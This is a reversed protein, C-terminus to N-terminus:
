FTYHLTFVFHRPLINSRYINTSFDSTQIQEFNKENLLNKFKVDASWSTNKPRYTANMDLFIFDTSENTDPLYYDTNISFLWQKNPKYIAEFSNRLRSNRFSAQSESQSISTQWNVSNEFDIPIDLATKWAVGYQYYNTENNRIDSNNVINNYESFSYIGSFEITSDIFSLYKSININANWRSNDLPLFFYQINTQNQDVTFNSFFGGESYKYSVGATMQFLTFLDNKHYSLSYLQHKILELSPIHSITRRNDIVVPNAYSHALANSTQNFSAKVSFFSNSNITYWLSLSPEFVLDNNTNETSNLENSIKQKLYRLSYAPSLKWKGLRFHYGGSSYVSHRNYEIDNMVNEESNEGILTRASLLSRFPSTDNNAGIVIHYKNKGFAGLFTVTTNLYNRKFSSDQQDGISSSTFTSPTLNYQQKITNSAHKVSLQLAQKQSIKKTFLLRQKVYFDETDLLSTSTDTGNKIIAVPTKINEQRGRLTYELLSTKSTNYKIEIDARYQEPKKRIVTNDSTEFAEDDFRYQDIFLQNSTIKDNLFYLNTKVSVKRGVKIIQNYNGFVQNNINIRKTDLISYFRSEPIVKEAYFNLENREEVSTSFGFYDFPTNNVGINNYALTSFSKYNKTIGLVNANLFYAEDDAEFAGSGVDANGSFDIRNNKLKLNLAVKGDNEIGKLLPNESYNDIAEIQDVIDVNINRTGLTYNFGFLNDGELMVTQVSKGKYRIEGSDENVEIGPLQKIVDEVKREDGKKYADVKYVVTDKKIKFPKEKAVVFVEELKTVDEKKLSFDILYKEGKVPQNIQKSARKYGSATLEILLTDYVKTLTYAYEYTNIMKYEVIKDPESVKKIVLMANPIHEGQSGTVTGQITQAVTLQVLLLFGISTYIRLISPLKM